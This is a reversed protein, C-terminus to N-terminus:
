IDGYNLQFKLVANPSDANYGVVECGGKKRVPAAGRLVLYDPSGSSRGSELKGSVEYPAPECGKKFTYAIGATEFYESFVWPDGRFLVTGPAVTGAISTKPEVYFIVGANEDHWMLSGNHEIGAVSNSVLGNGFTEDIAPRATPCLVEWQQSIDLGGSANDTSVAMGAQDRWRARGKGFGHLYGAINYTRGNVPRITGALCDASASYVKGAETAILRTTCAAIDDPRWNECYDRAEEPTVKASATANATDIGSSQFVETGVMKSGLSLGAACVPFTTVMAICMAASLLKM